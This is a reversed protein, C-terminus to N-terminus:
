SRLTATIVADAPMPVSNIRKPLLDLKRESVFESTWGGPLTISYVWERKPLVHGIEREVIARGFIEARTHPDAILAEVKTIREDLSGEFVPGNPRNYGSIGVHDVLATGRWAVQSKDEMLVYQLVADQEFYATNEQLGRNHLISNPFTRLVYGRMDNYYEPVAHKVVLALKERKISYQPTYIWPAIALDPEIPAQRNFVWGCSAFIGPITEHVERNWALCDPHMMVDSECYHILDYGQDYAWKYALMVAFSNGYYAHEPVDFVAAGNPALSLIELKERGNRKITEVRDLFIAIDVSEDQARIRKLACALYHARDPTVPILVCERM